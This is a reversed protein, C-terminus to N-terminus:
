NKSSPRAVYLHLGPHIDKANKIHNWKQLNSVSVNYRKAIKDLDDGPRVAYETLRTKTQAHIAERKEAKHRIAHPIHRAYHAVPIRLLQNIQLLDSKLHNAAKLTLIPVRYKKAIGIVTDGAKVRYPWYTYYLRLPKKHPPWITLDAGIRIYNGRLGNWYRIERPDVHYKKSITWLTEGKTVVHHIVKPEPIRHLGKFYRRENDIVIKTVASLRTPIILDQGPRILDKKINNADAILTASTKYKAAIADLTDNAKVTVRQWSVRDRKPLRALAKEFREAKDLPVLLHFPGTPATAWRNYGPNFNTLNVLSIGAMKAARALDIQSGINIKALFPANPIYPLNVPYQYPHSIITALALIKPVYNQTEKPLNLSWFTTSKGAKANRDVANQVNGQGTDYAAIALLWRNNFFNSLYAMYDLAANTSAIIDRRGDYWWNIHLGLGSATSPMIQWLGAARSSKNIAFPDYASEVIPILTLEFPLHRKKVQQFIYYLYPESQKAVSVLYKPHSMYWNIEYRVAPNNATEDPLHFGSALDSWIDDAQKYQVIAKKYQAGAKKNPTAAAFGSTYQTNTACATLLSMCFVILLFKCTQRCFYINRAVLAKAGRTITRLHTRKWALLSLSQKHLGKLGNIM